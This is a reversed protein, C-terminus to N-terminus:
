IKISNGIRKSAALHTEGLASADTLEGDLHAGFCNM